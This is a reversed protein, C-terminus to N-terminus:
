SISHDSSNLRTSKRDPGIFVREAPILRKMLQILAGSLLEVGPQNFDEPRGEGGIRKKGFFKRVPLLDTFRLASRRTFVTTSSSDDHADIPCFVSHRPISTAEVM